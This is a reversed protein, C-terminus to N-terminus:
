QRKMSSAPGQSQTRKDNRKGSHRFSLCYRKTFQRFLRLGEGTRPSPKPCPALSPPYPPYSMSVRREHFFWFRSNLSSKLGSCGTQTGTTEGTHKLQTSYGPFLICATQRREPRRTLPDPRCGQKVAFMSAVPLNTFYRLLGEGTRPLVMPSPRSLLPFIFSM